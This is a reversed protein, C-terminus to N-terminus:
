SISLLKWVMEEHFQIETRSKARCWAYSRISITIILDRENSFLAM